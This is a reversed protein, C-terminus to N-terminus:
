HAGCFWYGFIVLFVLIALPVIWKMPSDDNFDPVVIEEEIPNDEM